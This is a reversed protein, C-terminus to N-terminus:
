RLLRHEGALLIGGYTGNRLVISGLLQGGLAIVEVIPLATTGRFQIKRPLLIVLNDADPTLLPLLHARPAQANKHAVILRCVGDPQRQLIETLLIPQLRNRQIRTKYKLHM